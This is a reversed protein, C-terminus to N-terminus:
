EANGKILSMKNQPIPIGKSIGGPTYYWQIGKDPNYAAFTDPYYLSIAPLERAYLEQIRYVIQKRKERDMELMQQKLLENLEPNVDYRASNVSGAGYKSSIMENLIRPDGSIGGHGSVALDFDWNRVKSDTTAQELSVLQVKIGVDQLQNKIVEGDRDPVSQGGVAINSILLEIQLPQGDKHFLGSETQSYGMDTLLKRAKHPDFDYATTEPNYMEHDVSLLGYSAPAGFGRHARDIIQQQDIAYALAQRFRRDSFPEKKHNIMLKKNWGREDRIIELGKEELSQLMDPQISALDVDYSILSILPQGSRVYILREAKPQGQYYETFAEYIYTGQSKNFDKFQYPGSGIFAEPANFEKPEDVAQWIHKPLIPMTGGIDSLFPAYPKKLHIILQHPGKIEVRSIHDVTIWGYPHEQFYEISFAVDQARVPQGDHWKADPQLEFIYADQQENYSWSRALAPIYGSHDKWVLTDFIWSMRVYGPGRPYHFYPNPYGWDGKSDAIRVEKIQEAWAILPLCLLIIVPLLLLFFVKSVFRLLSSDLM